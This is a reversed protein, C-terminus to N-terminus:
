IFITIPVDVIQHLDPEEKSLLVHLVPKKMLVPLVYLLAPIANSLLDTMGIDKPAFAPEQLELPYLIDVDKVLKQNQSATTVDGLAVNTEIEM